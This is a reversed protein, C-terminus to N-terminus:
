IAGCQKCILRGESRKIIVDDDVLLNLVITNANKLLTKELTEAQPVTRPVGDLLYGKECDPARVREDLMELVLGDPVLKEQM